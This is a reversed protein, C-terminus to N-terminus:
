TNRWPEIGNETPDSRKEINWNSSIIGGPFLARVGPRAMSVKGAEIILISFTSQGRDQSHWMQWQVCKLFDAVQAALGPMLRAIIAGSYGCHSLNWYDPSYM